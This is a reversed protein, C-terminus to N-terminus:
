FSNTTSSGHALLHPLRLHSSPTYPSIQGIVMFHDILYSHYFRATISHICMFPNNNVIYVHYNCHNFTEYLTEVVKAFVLRGLITAMKKHLSIQLAVFLNWLLGQIHCRRWRGEQGPLFM